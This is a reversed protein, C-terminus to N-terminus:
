VEAYDSFTKNIKKKSSSAATTNNNNPVALISIPGYLVSRTQPNLKKNGGFVGNDSVFVTM